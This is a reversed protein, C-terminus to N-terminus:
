PAPLGPVPREDTTDWPVTWGAADFIRDLVMATFGWVILGDIDFAPARMVSRGRRWASMYRTAPDLLRAVPVRFVDVTEAHDVAAVRSPTRWWALVPTVRHRSAPLPIEPLVALTEIGAPDVGTEEQAERLATARPDADGPERRGGPFSVESPHSRLTAARRQLLVDLDRAVAADPVDAAVADLVGFLVLVAAERATGDPPLAPFMGSGRLTEAAALLERRAGEARGDSM